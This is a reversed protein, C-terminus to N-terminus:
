VSRSSSSWARRGCATGNSTSPQVPGAVEVGAHALQQNQPVRLGRPAIRRARVEVPTQSRAPSPVRRAHACPQRLAAQERVVHDAGRRRAGDLGGAEHEGGHPEVLLGVAQVLADVSGAGALQELQEGLHGRIRLAREQDAVVGSELARTYLRASLTRPKSPAFNKGVQASAWREM